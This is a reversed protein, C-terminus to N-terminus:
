NNNSIELIADRKSADSWTWSEVTLSADATSRFTANSQLVLNLKYSKGAELQTDTLTYNYTKDAFTVEVFTGDVTIPAIVASVYQPNEDLSTNIVTPLLIDQTGSSTIMMARDAAEEMDKSKDLSLIATQKMGVIKVTATNLEAALEPTVNEAKAILAIQVRTLMHYFNLTPYASEPAVDKLVGYLLDSKAVAATTSQDAEINHTITAPMDTTSKVITGEEMNAVLGYFNLNNEEPYNYTDGKSPLLMGNGSSTLEWAKVPDITPEAVIAGTRPNIEDAWVYCITNKPVFYDSASARTQGNGVSAYLQIERKGNAINEGDDSSCATLSLLLASLSLFLINKTKM